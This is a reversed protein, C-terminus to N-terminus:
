RLWVPPFHAWNYVVYKLGAGHLAQEMADHQGWEWKGPAREVAGWAIYDEDAVLGMNRLRVLSDVTPPTELFNPKPFAGIPSGQIFGVSLNGTSLNWPRGDFSPAQAVAVINSSLAGLAALVCIKPIMSHRDSHYIDNIRLMSL